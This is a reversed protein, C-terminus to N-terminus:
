WDPLLAPPLWTAGQGVLENAQGAAALLAEAHRYMPSGHQLLTLGFLPSQVTPWELIAVHGEEPAPLRADTIRQLLERAPPLPVVLRVDGHGTDGPVFGYVMVNTNSPAARIQGGPFVYRMHLQYEARPRRERYIGFRLTSVTPVPISINATGVGGRWHRASDRTLRFVIGAYGGPLPAGSLAAVGSTPAIAGPAFLVYPPFGEQPAVPLVARPAQLLDQAAAEGRAAARVIAALRYLPQLRPRIAGTVGEDSRAEARMRPTPTSSLLGAAALREVDDASTVLEIGTRNEGFWDDVSGAIADLVPPPDGETTDLLVGAEVHLGSIGAATLNASGVYAAQSGDARRLHYTKPHFFAGSYKVVGLQASPRPLGIAQVLHSVHTHLTDSNNSGIVVRVPLDNAALRELAPVFPPLGDASFFGSQWRLEAVEADLEEELWAGVTQGVDRAGSDIYRM